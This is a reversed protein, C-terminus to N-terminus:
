RKAGQGCWDVSEVGPWLGRGYTDSSVPANRRCEGILDGDEQRIFFKCVLCCFGGREDQMALNSPAATVM